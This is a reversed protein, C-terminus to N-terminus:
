HGVLQLKSASGSGQFQFLHFNRVLLEPNGLDQELLFDEPGVETASLAMGEEAEEKWSETQCGEEKMGQEWSSLGVPPAKQPPRPDVFVFGVELIVLQCLSWGPGPIAKM